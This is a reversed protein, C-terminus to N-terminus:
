MKWGKRQGQNRETRDLVEDVREKEMEKEDEGEKESVASLGRVDELKEFRHDKEYRRRKHDGDERECAGEHDAKEHPLVTTKPHKPKYRDGLLERRRTEYSVRPLHESPDIEIDLATPTRVVWVKPSCYFQKPRSRVPKPAEPEVHRTLAPQPADPWNAHFACQCRLPEPVDSRQIWTGSPIASSPELPYDRALITM